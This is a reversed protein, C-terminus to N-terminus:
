YYLTELLKQNARPRASELWIKHPAFQGSKSILGAWEQSDQILLNEAMAKAFADQEEDPRAMVFRRLDEENSDEGFLIDGLNEIVGEFHELM